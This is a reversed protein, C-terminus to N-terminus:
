LNDFYMKISEVDDLDDDIDVEYSFRNTLLSPDNLFLSLNKTKEDLRANIHKELTNQTQYISIKVEGLNSGIRHIRDRSQLYQAANYTRDLYFAKKCVEHLSIGESASMPNAIMIKCDPNENFQKVAYSRTEPDTDEGDKSQGFIVVPNYHSLESKLIKINKPFNTWIILKENKAVSEVDALLLNMKEGYGESLLSEALKYNVESLYTIQLLPNSLFQIMRLVANKFDRLDQKKKWDTKLNRIDGVLIEYLQKQTGTMPVDIILETLEPMEDKFDDKTTRVYLPQFKTILDESNYVEDKPYLFKFQPVLDDSSNPMPTGSLILKKNVFPALQYFMNASAGDERKIRHSEDLIVTYGPNNILEKALLNILAKNNRAYEINIMYLNHDKKLLKSIEILDDRLRIFAKSKDDFCKKIEKDWADLANKPCFVLLREKSNKRKAYYFALAETTKGSGPVSFDAASNLSTLELLNRMQFPKLKRAFGADVLKKALEAESYYSRQDMAQQMTKIGFNINQLEEHFSFYSIFKSNSQLFRILDNQFIFFDGLSIEGELDQFYIDPYIQSLSFKLEKLVSNDRFKFAVKSESKDLSVNIM